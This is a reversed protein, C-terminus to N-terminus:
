APITEFEVVAIVLSDQILELREGGVMFPLTTDVKGQHTLPNASRGAHFVITDNVSLDALSFDYGTDSPIGEWSGPHSVTPNGPGLAIIQGFAFNGYQSDPLIIGGTQKQSIQLRRILINSGRPRFSALNM